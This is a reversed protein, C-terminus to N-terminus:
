AAVSPQAEAEETAVALGTETDLAQDIQATAHRIVQEPERKSGGADIHTVESVGIFRCIHELYRSVFDMEGGVPTGGSTTIIYAHDIDLLGRPGDETYRFSVGARCVYDIWQKLYAPVSFNYMPVALVLTDAERLEDVLDNSLALHAHLSPRDDDHSGHVGILDDPNIPPLPERVLDRTRVSQGLKDVLYDAIVRSNAGETRASADIRLISM